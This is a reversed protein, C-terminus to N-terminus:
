MLFKRAMLVVLHGSSVIMLWELEWEVEEQQFTEMTQTKTNMVEVEGIDSSENWGGIIFILDGIVAVGMESRRTKMTVKMMEWRKTKESYVEITKLYQGDDDYGGFVFIKDDVVGVGPNSRKSENTFDGEM